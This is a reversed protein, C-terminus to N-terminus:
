AAKVFYCTEEGRKDKLIANGKKRLGTLAARTTHPLWGTAGALEALTAGEGRGLLQLVLESKTRPPPPAPQAEAKKARRKPQTNTANTMTTEASRLPVTGSGDASAGDVLTSRPLAREHPARSVDKAESQKCAFDVAIRVGELVNAM